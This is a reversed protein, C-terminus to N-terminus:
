CLHFIILNFTNKNIADTKITGTNIADVKIENINIANMVTCTLNHKRHENYNKNIRSM